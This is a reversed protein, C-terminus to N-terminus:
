VFSNRGQAHAHQPGGQPRGLGIGSAFTHDPRDTPLAPIEEYRQAPPMKLLNKIAPDRMVVMTPNMHAESRAYRDRNSRGRGVGTMSVLKRGTVSRTPFGHQTSQVMFVPQLSDSRSARISNNRM